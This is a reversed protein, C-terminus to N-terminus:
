LTRRVIAASRRCATKWRADRPTSAMRPRGRSTTDIWSRSGPRSYSVPSTPAARSSAGAISTETAARWRSRWWSSGLVHRPRVGTTALRGAGANVSDVIVEHQASACTTRPLITSAASSIGLGARLVDLGANRYRRSSPRRSRLHVAGIRRALARALTSKGVGPLGGLAILM